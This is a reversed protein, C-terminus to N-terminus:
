RSLFWFEGTKLKRIVEVMAKLSSSLNGNSANGSCLIVGKLIYFTHPLCIQVFAMPTGPWSSLVSLLSPASKGCERLLDSSNLKPGNDNVKRWLIKKWPSKVHFFRSKKKERLPYGFEQSPFYNDPQFMLLPDFAEPPKPQKM